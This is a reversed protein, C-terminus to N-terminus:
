AFPRPERSPTNELGPLPAPPPSAPAPEASAVKGADYPEAGSGAMDATAELGALRAADTPRGLKDPLNSVGGGIIMGGIGAVVAPIFALFAEGIGAPPAPVDLQNSTAYLSALLISSATILAFVMFRKPAAWSLLFTGTFVLGASAQLNDNHLYTYGAASAFIVAGLLLLIDRRM